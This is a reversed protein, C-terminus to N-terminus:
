VEYNMFFHYVLGEHQITALYENRTSELQMGQGTFLSNIRVVIEKSDTEVMAWMVPKGDQIQIDMIESKEPMRVFTRNEFSLEYKYIKCKQMTLYFVAALLTYGVIPV